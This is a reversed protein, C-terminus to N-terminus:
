VRREAWSKIVGEETTDYEQLSVQDGNLFTNAQVFVWKPEKNALVIDRWKSYEGDVKSLEEYYSRCAQVDATCRYMHLRLLMRGLAPKGHTRIKSRDVEVALIQKALDCKISMFGNGDTLLCKLMAFHARSHAQGWKDNDINFNQLGRLGDVGLQLYLNYTLDDNTIESDATFGFLSLLEPDDMLYAGVLEARCEDVTTALEGFQSTWTQGPKYWSTIANGTLPNIPKNTIDFNYKDDGEQVMMKGTGHGLLEHLVVWLYYASFKHKQFTAAESKNIYPCIESKNSEATMRNAVIINKFGCEQRIDNYNPLNIGPFIITSCYALAHVSAFDPPEFLEKEFPGKGDNDSSSSSESWPLRRIFQASNDVLRQLTKTEESDSIAVLGEFEARAGHPDRYPEVFGMINEIVPAKDKIWTRQSDRYSHLNGTHFSEIYQSLFQKQTDNATYKSAESLSACIQKLEDCHDGLVLQVVSKTDQKLLIEHSSIGIDTSAQLVRFTPTGSLISKSIRTNEPFISLEQLARSVSEVEDNTIDCDGPYYASQAAGSPYGLSFPPTAFIDNAFETYLEQLRPSKSALRKLPELSSIDPVFKQDGSGYYNGINSLFTAAYRIFAACDHSTIGDEGVLSKWDGRCLAYLEMIFDFIPTSEPSVQRLIIKTGHWAARSMHHAYLKERQSLSAFAKGISLQHIPPRPPCHGSRQDRM